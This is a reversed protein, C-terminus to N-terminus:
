SVGAAAVGALCHPRAEEITVRVLAGPRPVFGEVPRVHVVDNHRTRGQWTGGARDSPGELLVEEAVGVRGRRWADAIGDAVRQLRRLRRAKEAASVDDPWRAAATGPRPSYAFSFVQVFGVERVLAVTEEFQAETEGPFGVIVDTGFTLDARAGRLRDIARRYDDRGYRRGMRRLVEDSGSQVPLHVHECLAATEAHARAAEEDVFRPHPSTYRLRRLGPVAGIRRLLEGFGVGEWRYDNVAQGILTVERVGAAALGAAEAAVEGAPRPRLPGRVAPVICFTCHEGCGKSVTVFATPGPASLEPRAVAFDGPGGATFGTAVRPLEAAPPVVAVAPLEALRDPGLVADIHPFDELWAGRCREAACGAVVVRRGARRRKWAALRGVASRAKQEAKERVCCTNVVCVDAEVPGVAPELGAARLAEAMRASDHRNMQCGLTVFWFRRPRRSDSM